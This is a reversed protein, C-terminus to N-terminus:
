DHLLAAVIPLAIPWTVAITATIAMAKLGHWKGMAMAIFFIAM